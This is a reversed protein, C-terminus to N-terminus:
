TALSRRARGVVVVLQCHVAIQDVGDRAERCTLEIAEELVRTEPHAWPVDLAHVVGPRVDGDHAIPAEPHRADVRARAGRRHEPEAIHGGLVTEEHHVDQTVRSACLEAREDPTRGAVALEIALLPTM